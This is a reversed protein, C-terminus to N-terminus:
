QENTEPKTKKRSALVKAWKSKFKEYFTQLKNIGDLFSEDVKVM